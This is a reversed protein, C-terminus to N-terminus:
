QAPGALHREICANLDKWLVPKGLYDNMGEALFKERDGTMAYATMAIIPVTRHQTGAAGARIGRTAEVGDMNPMQIDMLVLDFPQATLARLAQDGDDAVGVQYGSKELMRKLMTQNIRNDEAILVRKPSAPAMCPRPADLTTAEAAAVPITVTCTTGRGPESAMSITGQMMDVLQKVISLGLGAGQYRRRYSDEVQMFPAFIRELQDGPIGIGTDSVILELWRTGTGDVLNRVQCSVEGAATFKIANGLLNFLIQRVRVADGLMTEPLKPDLTLRLPIAKGAAVLQLTQICGRVLEAPAFPEAKLTLLGAEISSLDLLDKLLDLLGLGAQKSLAVYEAQEENLPSLELLQVMGLIGNLPTRLEHSMNALFSSKALNAAEASEKAALLAAEFQKRETIDIMFGRLRVPHAGAMEVRCVDRLWVIGGDKKLFRYEFTHAEGRQTCAHCYQSAWARDEEHIHEVWFQLNTWEEPSYGLLETVYPAVYTWRDNELDFEWLIAETNEALQRYKSESERLAEAMRQQERLAYWERQVRAVTKPMEAFAAPSKVIYDIAGAKIAEVAMAESGFATMVLIPFPAEEAPTTLVETARGDPLNLDMLVLHPRQMAVASRYDKLSGVVQLRVDAQDAFARAIAEAHAIEDEAILIRIMDVSM